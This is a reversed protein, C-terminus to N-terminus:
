KIETEIFEVELEANDKVVEAIIQFGKDHMKKIIKDRASKGYLSAEHFFITKLKPNLSIAIEASMDMLTAYNQQGEELPLKNLYIEDDDFTLGDIPLESSSIIKERTTEKSSITIGLTQLEQKSKILEKQKKAFEEVRQCNGNHVSADTLRQSVEAASPKINDQLWKNGKEIETKTEVIKKDQTNISKKEQEIHIKLTDIKAEFEKINDYSTHINEKLKVVNTEREKVGSEVKSWNDISQSITGLESQISELNIPESYKEIDESSFGHNAMSSEANEIRDKLIKRTEKLEKIDNAAIDLEKVKGTLKKLIDIKDKKSSKLFEFIDFGIQGIISKILTSPSKMVEGKENTLVVRGKANAPTFYIDITYTKNEGNVVGGIVTQITARDEGERIPKSPIVKSDLGATLMQILSSKGKENDGLVIFSRGGIDLHIKKINKYNEGTVSLFKLGEQENNM